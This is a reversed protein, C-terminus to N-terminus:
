RRGALLLVSFPPFDILGAPGAKAPSEGPIRSLSLSGTHQHLLQALHAKQRDAMPTHEPTM